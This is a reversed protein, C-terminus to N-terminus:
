PQLTLLTKETKTFDNKTEFVLLHKHSTRHSTYNSSIEITDLDCVYATLKSITIMYFTHRIIVLAILVLKTDYTKHM